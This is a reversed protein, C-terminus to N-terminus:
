KKWLHTKALLFLSKLHVSQEKIEKRYTYALIPTTILPVTLMGITWAILPAHKIFPKLEKM